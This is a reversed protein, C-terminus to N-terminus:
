VWSRVRCLSKLVLLLYHAASWSFNRSELGAGTLPHYNERISIGKELVGEANHILKRTAEYAEEHFGYNHLGEVGFYSQDLWVPGRWYGGDPKFKPHNAALTQFPVARNFLLTDMMNEKVALAQVDTAAGAWLPIWGECGKADIFSEGDLSTDYFWGSVPDYFQDQIKKKLVQAEQDHRAVDAKLDLVTAIESLYRKEAFLYANLDVSEQNLSFAGEGNELIQSQDFRVANDMGSEWKAAILTGDTSGYECLGDQDHDRHRFWWNHQLLIKPYMEKLFSADQDNRFVEWVAWASLPPKTNRYNHAEITTDRYVCDAIFGKEDQFAYMARIQEKALAPNYRALAVAHKWSDWAWFGHFWVYHYSPFLGAHDLEGAPIRWNNQLTLVSKAILNRYSSDTWHSDLQAYLITLEKRKEDIRASLHDEFDPYLAKLSSVEEQWEYEPFIFSHSLYIRKTEGPQLTFKSLRIQYASDSLLVTPDEEGHVLIYGKAKSKESSIALGNQLPAIDFSGSFLRGVWEVSFEADMDSRNTIEAQISASHGSSFFLTEKLTLVKGEYTQELHSNFAKTTVSASSLDLTEGGKDRVVMQSLVPSIWVGNEQTMLFPGAFGGYNEPNSPFGYSFWAGQDSFTLSSRNSPSDPDSSYDLLGHVLDMKPPVEAEQENDGGNCSTLTMIGLGILILLMPFKHKGRTREQMIEQTTGVQITEQTKRVQITEQITM